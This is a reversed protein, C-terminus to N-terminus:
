DHLLGFLWYEECDLGEGTARVLKEHPNVKMDYVKNMDYVEDKYGYYTFARCKTCQRTVLYGSVVEHPIPVFNHRM